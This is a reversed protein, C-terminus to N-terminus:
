RSPNSGKLRYSAGKREGVQELLGRTVLDLLDRAATRRPTDTLTQYVGNTISGRDKVYLVALIQREDLGQQELRERTLTDKRFIVRFSRREALFEPEPMGAEKCQQIMRTTGTGWREILGAYFLTQAILPNRLRSPHGVRRLDDTTLDDPLTGPNHVELRDDFVRIQIENSDSYERHMLANLVAERLAELPYEWDERRQLMELMTPEDPTGVVAHLTPGQRTIRGNAGLRTHQYLRLSQFIREIMEFLNGEIMRDDLIQQGVMRGTGVPGSGANNTELFRGMHVHTNAFFRKPELGFLLIAARTPRGDRRLGLNELIREPPDGEQMAPLRPQAQRVFRQIANVDLDSDTGVPLGDWTHGSLELSRQAVQHPTMDRNTNGVRTFYRGQCAILVGANPVRIELVRKSDMELWTLSPHLSLVTVIENVIKQFDQDSAAFGSVSGDDEVGILVRGGRTNAFAAITELVGKHWTRKFDLMENEALADSDM